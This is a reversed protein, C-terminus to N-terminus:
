TAIFIVSWTFLKDKVHLTVKNQYYTLAKANHVSAIMTTRYERLHENDISLITKSTWILFSNELLKELQFLAINILYVQSSHGWLYARHYKLSQAATLRGM